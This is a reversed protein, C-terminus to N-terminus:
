SIIVSLLVLSREGGLLRSSLWSVNYWVDVLYHLLWLLNLIHAVSIDSKLRDVATDGLVGKALELLAMELVARVIFTLAPCTVVVVIHSVLSGSAWKVNLHRLFVSLLLIIAALVVCWDSLLRLVVEARYLGEVLLIRVRLHQLIQFGITRDELCGLLTLCSVRAQEISVVGGESNLVASRSGLHNLIDVVDAVYKYKLVWM